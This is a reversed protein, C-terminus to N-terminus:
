ETFRIAVITINDYGGNENANQILIETASQLEENEKLITLIDADTILNHLGDSCLILIDGKEKSITFMDPEVDVDCGVAKLLLNRDKRSKAEDSTIKGEDVLQQVYSHDVSIQKIEDNRIFYCRSDGVNAIYVNTEDWACAVVTTGMGNMDPNKQSLELIERNAKKISEKLIFDFERGNFNNFNESIIEVAAKSAVEGKKHGGMGDAVVAFNNGVAYSDENQERVMGKHSFSGIDFSM